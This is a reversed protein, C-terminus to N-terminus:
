EDISEIFELVLGERMVVEFEYYSQDQYKIVSPNMIDNNVKMVVKKDGSNFVYFKLVEGAYHNLQLPYNIVLNDEDFITLRYLPANTMIVTQSVRSYESESIVHNDNFGKLAGKKVIISHYYNKSYDIKEFNLIISGYIIVEKLDYEHTRASVVLANDNFFEEDYTEIVNTYDTILSDPIDSVGNTIKEYRARIDDVSRYVGDVMFQPLTTLTFDTKVETIISGVPLKDLEYSADSVFEKEKLAEVYQTLNYSDNVVSIIITKHNSSLQYKKDNLEDYLEKDITELEDLEVDLRITVKYPLIIDGLPAKSITIEVDYEPMIFDYTIIAGDQTVNFELPSQHYVAYQHGKTDFTFSVSDGAQYYSDEFNTLEFEPDITITVKYGDDTNQNLNSNGENQYIDCGLLFSFTIIFILFLIKKM